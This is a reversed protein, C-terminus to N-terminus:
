AAGAGLHEWTTHRICPDAIRLETRVVGYPAAAVNAVDNVITANIPNLTRILSLITATALRRPRINPGTITAHTAHLDDLWTRVLAVVETTTM